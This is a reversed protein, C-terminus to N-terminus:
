LYRVVAKLGTMGLRSEYAKNADSPGFRHTVLKRADPMISMMKSTRQYQDTTANQTGTLFLEDYHIRNAEMDLRSGPPFGAFLNFYGQKRIGSLGEEVPAVAGVSLIGVDAGM